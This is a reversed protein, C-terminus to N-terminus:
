NPEEESPEHPSQTQLPLCASCLTMLYLRFIIWSPVHENYMDKMNVVDLRSHDMKGWFSKTGDESIECCKKYFKIVAM